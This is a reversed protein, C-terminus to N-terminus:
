TLQGTLIGKEILDKVIEIDKADTERDSLYIVGYPVDEGRDWAEQVMKRFKPKVLNIDNKQLYKM